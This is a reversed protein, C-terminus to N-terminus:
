CGFWLSGDLGARSAWVYLSFPKRFGGLEWVLGFDLNLIRTGSVGGRAQTNHLGEVKIWILDVLLFLM